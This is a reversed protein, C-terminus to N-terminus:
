EFGIVKEDTKQPRALALIVFVLGLYKLLDPLLKLRSRIGPRLDRALSLTSLPLAGHRSRRRVYHAVGAVFLLFFFSFAWWSSWIM